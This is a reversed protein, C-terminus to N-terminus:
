QNKIEIFRLTNGDADTVYFERTGWTQNLPANHVSSNPNNPVQLGRNRYKEFLKGIDNVYVNIAIGYKGDVQTLLIQAEENILDVCFINLAENPHTLSFDLIKTYFNVATEINSVKLLPVIKM